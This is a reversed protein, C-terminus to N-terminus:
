FLRASVPVDAVYEVLTGVAAATGFLTFGDATPNNTSPGIFNSASVLAASGVTAAIRKTVKYHCRAGVTAGIAYGSGLVHYRQIEYYRQCRRKNEGAEVREFTIGAAPVAGRELQVEGISWTGSTQAGVSTVVEIGTSAAAPVNIQTSYVSETSSVTFSGSAILTRTPSALTGFADSSTAYYAAWNVTTLLSNALKMSLTAVGGALHRSNAAEIRTGYGVATVSAAGTFRWRKSGDAAAVQQGSVNAGTCYGYFMEAGVALAAGATFTVAGGAAPDEDQGGNIIVNRFPSESASVNNRAGIATGGSLAKIKWDTAGAPMQLHTAGGAPVLLSTAGEITDASGRQVTLSNAAAADVRRFQYEAEDTASGSTPLTLVVSGTSCDVLVLGCQTTALTASTTLAARSTADSIGKSNLADWLATLTAKLNAGPLTAGAVSARSFLKAM